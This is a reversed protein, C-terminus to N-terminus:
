CRGNHTSDDDEQPPQARVKGRKRLHHGKGTPFRGLEGGVRRHPSLQSGRRGSDGCGSAYRARVQAFEAAPVDRFWRKDVGLPIVSIKNPSIGTWKALELKSYESITIIQDAWNAARIWLANKLGRHNGRSWHPHSLPIADMLTAVLPVPACKPVYHDTAHILDVKQNLRNIGFFNFGTAASWAANLPYRGLTIGSNDDSNAEGRKSELQAASPNRNSSLGSEGDIETQEAPASPAAHKLEKFVEGAVPQGFAFPVLSLDDRAGFQRLMELTYNGIGDSGGGALGKCLATVGFGVRMM